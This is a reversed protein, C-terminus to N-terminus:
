DEPILGGAEENERDYADGDFESRCAQLMQGITPMSKRDVQAAPDWLKSRSLSQSCHVYASEISVIVASRPIRGNVDAFSELLEPDISIRARGNVRMTEGMGPVLFLMAIRGDDAINSLTDVRNNGSRDPLILTKKDAVRVFGPPGGRPSCDLGGEGATSIVVFPSTEIFQIYPGTLFTMEKVLSAPVPEGYLERLFGPDIIKSPENM